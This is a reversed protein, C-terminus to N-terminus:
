KSYTGHRRSTTGLNARTLILLPFPSHLQTNIHECLRLAPVQVSTLRFDSHENSQLGMGLTRQKADDSPCRLGLLSRAWFNLKLCIKTEAWRAKIAIDGILRAIVSKRRPCNPLVEEWTHALRSQHQHQPPGGCPKPPPSEATRHPAISRCSCEDLKGPELRSRTADAKPRTAQFVRRKSRSDQRCPSEARCTSSTTMYVFAFNDTIPDGAVNNAHRQRSRDPPISPRREHAPLHRSAPAVPAASHLVSLQSGGNPSRLTGYAPHRTGGSVSNVAVKPRAQPRPPSTGVSPSATGHRQPNLQKHPRAGHAQHSAPRATREDQRRHKPPSRAEASASDVTPPSNGVTRRGSWGLPARSWLDPTPNDTTAMRHAPPM